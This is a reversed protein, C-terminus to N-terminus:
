HKAAAKFDNLGADAMGALLNANADNPAVSLVRGFSSKAAKFQNAKLAEVGKRYEAAADFDTARDSPSSGAPASNMASSISSITALLGILALRPFPAHM